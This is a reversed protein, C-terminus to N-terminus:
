LLNRTIKGKIIYLSEIQEKLLITDGKFNPNSSRLILKKPDSHQHLIKLMKLSNSSEKTLIVYAEGWQLVDKNSLEKIAIIEGSAFKPYMSDGFVYLYATCDNFPKFNVFYEPTLEKFSAYTSDNGINHSYFPVGGDINDASTINNFLEGIGSELWHINVNLVRRLKDKLMRSVGLGGKARIVDSLSGSQMGIRRAFAAQTPFSSQHILYKLRENESMNEFTTIKSM